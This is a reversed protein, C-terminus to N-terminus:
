ATSASGGAGSNRKVAKDNLKKDCIQFIVFVAKTSTHHNSMCETRVCTIKLFLPGSFLVM